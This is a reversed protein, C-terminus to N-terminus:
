LFFKRFSKITYMIDVITAVPLSLWPAYHNLFLQVKQRKSLQKIINDFKKNKLEQWDRLYCAKQFFVFTKRRDISDNYLFQTEENLVDLMKIQRDFFRIALNKDYKVRSSWSNAAMVRYVSMERDIYFMGGRLAGRIQISHDGGMVRQYKYINEYVDTRILLSNTAVLGGGDEIVRKVPIVGNTKIPRIYGHIMNNKMRVATHACIDIEDNKDMEDVQIQLKEKDTWYDDGECTAEYKSQGIWEKM